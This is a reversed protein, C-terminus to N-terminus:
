DWHIYIYVRYGSENSNKMIFAGVLKFFPDIKSIFTCDVYM